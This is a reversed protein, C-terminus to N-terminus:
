KLNPHDEEKEEHDAHNAYNPTFSRKNPMKYDGWINVDKYDALKMDEPGFFDTKCEASNCAPISGGVGRITLSKKKKSQKSQQKKVTNSNAFMETPVSHDIHQDTGM